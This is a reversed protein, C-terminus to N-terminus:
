SRTRCGTRPHPVSVKTLSLRTRAGTKGPCAGACSTGGHISGGIGEGQRMRHALQLPQGNLGAVESGMGVHQKAPGADRDPMAHEIQSATRAVHREDGRLDDTGTAVYHTDVPGRYRHGGRAIAGMEGTVEIGSEFQTVHRIQQDRALEVHDDAPENEHIQRIRQPSQSVQAPIQAWLPSM